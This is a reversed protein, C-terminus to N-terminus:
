GDTDVRVYGEIRDLRFHRPQLSELDFAEVVSHGTIAPGISEIKRPKVHRDSRDAEWVAAYRSAPKVYTFRVPLGREIAIRLAAENWKDASDGPVPEGLGYIYPKSLNPDSCSMRGTTTGVQRETKEAQFNNVVTVAEASTSLRVLTNTLDKVAETLILVSERLERNSAYLDSVEDTLDDVRDELIATNLDIDLTPM